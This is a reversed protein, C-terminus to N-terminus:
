GIIPHPHAKANRCRRSPDCPPLRDNSSLDLRCGYYEEGEGKVIETVTTVDLYLVRLNSFNLGQEPPQYNQLVIPLFARRNYDDNEHTEFVIPVKAVLTRWTTEQDRKFANWQHPHMRKKLGDLFQDM